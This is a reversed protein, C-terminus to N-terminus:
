KRVKIYIMYISILFIVYYNKKKYKQINLANSFCIATLTEKSINQIGSLKLVFM